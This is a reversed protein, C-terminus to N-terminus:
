SYGIILVGIVYNLLNLDDNMAAMTPECDQVQFSMPLKTDDVYYLIAFKFLHCRSVNQRLVLGSVFFLTLM